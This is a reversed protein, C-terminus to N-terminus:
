RFFERKPGGLDAAEEGSFTVNPEKFFTFDDRNIARSTTDVLRKRRITLSCSGPIRCGQQYAGLEEQLQGINM